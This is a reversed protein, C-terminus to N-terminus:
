TRFYTKTQRSKPCHPVASWDLPSRLCRSLYQSPCIDLYTGRQSHGTSWDRSCPLWLVPFLFAFHRYDAEVSIQMRMLEISNKLRWYVLIHLLKLRSMTVWYGLIAGGGGEKGTLYLDSFSWFYEHRALCWAIMTLYLSHKTLLHAHVFTCHWVIVYLTVPHARHLWSACGRTYDEIFM